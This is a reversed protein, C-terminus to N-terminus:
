AVLAALKDLSGGWGHAHRERSNEDPLGEHLLILDTGGDTRARFEVTVVTEPFGAMTEWCWTYVLKKPADIERYVGTVDHVKGDPAAMSIHYRGGVRLDVTARATMEGPASWHSLGDATTWAQFLREPSAAFRREVRLTRSGTTAQITAM